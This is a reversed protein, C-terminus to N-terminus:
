AGAGLVPLRHGGASTTPTRAGWTIFTSSPKQSNYDAAVWSPTYTAAYIRAEDLTGPTFTTARDAGVQAQDTSNAIAGSPTTGTFYTLATNTGNLYLIARTVNTAQSGDWTAAVHFWTGTSVLSGATYAFFSSAGGGYVMGLGLNNGFGTGGMIIGFRELATSISKVMVGMFDVSSTLKVWLSFSVNTVNVIASIAPATVKDSAGNFTFGSSLEGSTTHIVSTNQVSAAATGGTADTVTTNGANEEFHYVAKFASPWTTTSSGDTSISADGFYLYIVTDVTSSLTPIKVYMQFAGSAADYNVLQFTLPSGGIGDYPRIDYGSTSQVYGGNGTSKFDVDIAQVHGDLCIACPWDTSNATGSQAESLTASKYYSFAM